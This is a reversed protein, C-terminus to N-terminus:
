AAMEERRKSKHTTRTARKRDQERQYQRVIWQRALQQLAAPDAEFFPRYEGEGLAKGAGSTFERTGGSEDLFHLWADGSLSAIDKGPYHVLAVRKLLKNLAYLLDLGAQNRTAEMGAKLEYTKGTHSLVWLAYQLRQRRQWLRVLLFAAWGLALALLIAVIWWGPAPPWFGVAEPLHIDRLQSLPDETEM